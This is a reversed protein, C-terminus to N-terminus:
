DVDVVGQKGYLLWPLTFPSFTHQGPGPSAVSPAADDPLSPPPSPFSNKGCSTQACMRPGRTGPEPRGEARWGREGGEACESATTGLALRVVSVGQLPFLELMGRAEM